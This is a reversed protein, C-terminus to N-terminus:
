KQQLIWKRVEVKSFFFTKEGLVAMPMGQSILENIKQPSLGLWAGLEKKNILDKDVSSDKRAKTITDIAIEYLYQKFSEEQDGSLMIKVEPM